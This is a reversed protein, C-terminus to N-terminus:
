GMKLDKSYDHYTKLVKEIKEQPLELIFSLYDTIEEEITMEPSLILTTDTSRKTVKKDLLVHDEMNALEAIDGEVEYIVHHYTGAPMPDGVKVTKRILQPLELKIFNSSSTNTDFIIVGTDVTSRHFSTTIPSGPYIINRQCNDYSHLDGALVNKWKEFISLDVEAKVHPAIDGRVHTVLTPSTFVATSHNKEFDKLKNYPIFDILNKGDSDVLTYYQDVITVLRNIRNVTSKLYSFFTTDKKLAEHNGPIIFTTINIKSIFEYFLELEELSPLKDFWDGGIIHIDVKKELEYIKDFLLKFRNKAWENPISKTNLKIHWDASFLCIM